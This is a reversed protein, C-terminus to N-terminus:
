SKLCSLCILVIGVAVVALVMLMMEEASISVSHIMKIPVLNWYVM